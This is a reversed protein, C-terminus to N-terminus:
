FMTKILRLNHTYRGKEQNYIGQHDIYDIRVLGSAHIIRDQTILIGTHTIRGEENDFFALDGPAAESLLHVNEGQHVQQSADRLLRFGSAKYVIQTFGSCDVGFPSKGGWLYPASRFVMANEIIANREPTTDPPLTEGEYTYITDGIYFTEKVFGPLSTGILVPILFNNKNSSLYNVFDLCVSTPLKILTRYTKEELPTYQKEDIWGEYNDFEQRIYVWNNYQRTVQFLDGFLLQTTMEAEDSPYSRVPVLSIECIGFKNM